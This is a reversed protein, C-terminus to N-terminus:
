SVFSVPDPFPPYLTSPRLQVNPFSPFPSDIPCVFLHFPLSNQLLLFWQISSLPYLSLCLSSLLSLSVPSFLLFGGAVWLCVCLSMWFSEKLCFCKLIMPCLFFPSSHRKERRGHWENFMVEPQVKAEEFCQSLSGFVCVSLCADRRKIGGAQSFFPYCCPHPIFSVCSMPFSFFLAFLM